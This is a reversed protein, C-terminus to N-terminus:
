ENGKGASGDLVLLSINLFLVVEGCAIKLPQANESSRGGHGDDWCGLMRM